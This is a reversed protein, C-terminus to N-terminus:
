KKYKEQVSTVRDQCWKAFGESKFLGGLEELVKALEKYRELPDFDIVLHLKRLCVPCVDLPKADVEGLHNSGNMICKYYICHRMGFMHGLEHVMVKYARYLVLEKLNPPPDEDFFLPNYRAFSFVGVRAELNALGFIYNWEACSYIDDFLICIMAYADEPLYKPMIKLIDSANYQIKETNENIRTTVTLNTLKVNEVINVKLPFYFAACLRKCSELFAKDM